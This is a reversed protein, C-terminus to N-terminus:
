YNELSFKNSFCVDWLIKYSDLIEMIMKQKNLPHYPISTWSYETQSQISLVNFFPKYFNPMMNETLRHILPQSVQNLKSLVEEQHKLICDKQQGFMVIGYRIAFPNMNINLAFPNYASLEIDQREPHSLHCILNEYIDDDHTIIAGGEGTSFPKNRGFSFICVDAYYGSYKEKYISGFSSAADHILLINHKKCINKLVDLRAPYGLLDASFICKTNSTILKEISDPSITLTPEEIEAFVLTNNLLKLGSFAGAWTLPTTIVECNTLGLSYFVGMIGVTANCVSLVNANDTHQRLLGEFIRTESDFVKNFNM